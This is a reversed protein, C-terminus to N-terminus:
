FLALLVIKPVKWVVVCLCTFRYAEKGEVQCKTSRVSPREGGRGHGAQELEDEAGGGCM